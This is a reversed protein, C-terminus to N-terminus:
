QEGALMRDLVTSSMFWRGGVKIGPVTGDRLNRRLTVPHRKLQPAAQEAPVLHPQPATVVAARTKGVTQERPELQREPEDCGSGDYKTTALSEALNIM